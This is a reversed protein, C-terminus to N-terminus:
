AGTLQKELGAILAEDVDALLHGYRDMTMVISSHGLRHQIAKMPVGVAILIAVHSHRLDHFRPAPDLGAALVTPRWVRAHFNSRRLPEGSESTFVLEHQHGELHAALATVVTPPLSVYRRSQPTKPEGFSLQGNVDSLTQAVELRRRLLDLRTRPLGALEGWRMGTGAAVLVLTRYPASTAAVLTDIQAPDLFVAEARTEKPLRIGACPNALILGELVADRLVTSLLAQVNRVTKPALTQSLKAIFARVTLPTIDKLAMKGFFPLLHNRLRGADTAATSVRTFRAENWRKAWDAFPIQGGRPDIWQGRSLDVLTASLFAQAQKRTGFTVSHRGGDADRYVARTRGSPLTELWGSM